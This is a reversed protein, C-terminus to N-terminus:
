VFLSRESTPEFLAHQPEPDPEAESGGIRGRLASALGSAWAAPDVGGGGGGAVVTRFVTGLLTTIIAAFAAGLFTPQGTANLFTGGAAPKPKPQAKKRLRARRTPRVESHSSESSPSRRRKRGGRRKPASPAYVPQEVLQDLYRGARGRGWRRGATTAMAPLPQGFSYSLQEDEIERLKREVAALRRSEARTQAQSKGRPAARRSEIPDAPTAGSEPASSLQDAGDAVTASVASKGDESGGTSAMWIRSVASQQDYAVDTQRLSLAGVFGRRTRAPTYLGEAEV